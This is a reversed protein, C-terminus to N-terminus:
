PTSVPKPNLWLQQMQREIQTRRRPDPTAEILKQYIQRADEIMGARGLAEAAYFRATHGWPDEGSAGAFTASRLFYEAASVYHKLANHSDAIWFLIERRTRDGDARDYVASLLALADEHRGVAQLDFLVQLLRSTLDPDLKPQAALLARLSEVAVGYEGAYVLIRARRLAWEEPLEGQPPANLGHILDAALRINYDAIAKDALAHRVPVPIDSAAPYRESQTYLSELTQARGDRMLGTALRRHSLTRVDADLARRSLFAYYARAVHHTACSVSEAKDLWGDDNGVLLKATNGLREALRDYARWLDDSTADLLSQEGSGPISLAQELALVQADDDSGARAAEATLAWASRRLAPRSSLAEALQRAAAVVEAPKQNKARLAATLRLLRADYSQLGTLASAAAQANGSQLLMEARLVQWPETKAQYDQQYRSLATQADTLRGEQMYSRIVLRRVQAATNADVGSSWLIQRLYRRAGEPDNKALRAEAADQLAARRFAAPTNKPLKDVRQTLEDWRRLSRLVALRQQELRAWEVAPLDNKQEADLVRLALQTAGGKVLAAIYDLDAARAAHPASSAALFILFSLVNLARTM